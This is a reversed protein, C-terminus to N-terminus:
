LLRPLVLDRVRKLKNPIDDLLAAYREGALRWGADGGRASAPRPRHLGDTTAQAVGIPPAEGQRISAIDNPAM